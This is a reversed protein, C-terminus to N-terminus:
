TRRSPWSVSRPPTPTTSSNTSRRAAPRDARHAQADAAVKASDVSYQQQYADVQLQEQVLKQEIAKAQAKLDGVQNAAAPRSAVVTFSSMTVLTCLLAASVIRFGRGKGASRRTAHTWARSM